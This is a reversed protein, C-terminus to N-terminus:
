SYGLIKGVALAVLVACVIWAQFLPGHKSPAAALIEAAGSSVKTEPIKDLLREVLDHFPVITNSVLAPRHGYTQLIVFVKKGTRVADLAEIDPWEIRVSRLLKDVTIGREDLSVRRALIEAGLYYFPALLLILLPGRGSIGELGVLVIGAAMALIVPPIIRPDVRYSATQM